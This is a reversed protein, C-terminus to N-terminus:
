SCESCEPCQIPYSLELELSLISALSYFIGGVFPFALPFFRGGLIFFLTGLVESVYTGLKPVKYTFGDEGDDDFVDMGDDFTNIEENLEDGSRQLGTDMVDAEESHAHNDDSNDTDASSTSSSNLDTDADDEVDVGLHVFDGTKELKSELRLNEISLLTGALYLLSSFRYLKPSVHDHTLYSSSFMLMWAMLGIVGATLLPRVVAVLAARLRAMTSMTSQDKAIKRSELGEKYDVYENRCDTCGALAYFVSAVFYLLMSSTYGNLADRVMLLAGAPLLFISGMINCISTDSIESFLGLRNRFVNITSSVIRSIKDKLPIRRTPSNSEAGAAVSMMSFSNSSAFGKWHHPLPPIRSNILGVTPINLACTTRASITIIVVLM